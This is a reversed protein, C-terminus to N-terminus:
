CRTGCRKSGVRLGNHQRGGSLPLLLSRRVLKSVGDHLTPALTVMNWPVCRASRGSKRIMEPKKLLQKKLSTYWSYCPRLVEQLHDPWLFISYSAADISHRAPTSRRENSDIQFPYSLDGSTRIDPFATRSVLLNCRTCGKAEVDNAVGM